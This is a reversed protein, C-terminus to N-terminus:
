VVQCSYSPVKSISSQLALHQRTYHLTSLTGNTCKTLSQAALPPQTRNSPFFSDKPPTTTRPRTLIDFKCQKCKTSNPAIDQVSFCTPQESSISLRVGNIERWSHGKNNWSFHFSQCIVICTGLFTLLWKHPVNLGGVIQAIYTKPQVKSLFSIVLTQQKERWCSFGM